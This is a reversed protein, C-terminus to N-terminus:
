KALSRGLFRLAIRLVIAALVISLGVSGLVTSILLFSNM